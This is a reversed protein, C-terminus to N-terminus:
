VHLPFGKFRVCVDHPPSGLIEMWRELQVFPSNAQDQAYYLSEKVEAESCLKIWVTLYGTMKVDLPPKGLFFQFWSLVKSVVEKDKLFGVLSHKLEKKGQNIVETTLRVGTNDGNKLVWGGKFTTSTM